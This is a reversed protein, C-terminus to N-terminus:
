FARLKALLLIFVEKDNEALNALRLLDSDLEKNHKWLVKLAKNVNETKKKVQDDTFDHLNKKKTKDSTMGELEGNIIDSNSGGNLLQSKILQGIWDTSTNQPEDDEDDDEEELEKVKRRLDELEKQMLGAQIGRAIADEVNVSSGIGNQQQGYAGAQANLAFCFRIKGKKRGRSSESHPDKSNEDMGEEFDNFLLLDYCLFNNPNFRCMNEAWDKFSKVAAANNTTHSCDYVPTSGKAANQRYILFRKLDTQKIINCVSEIGIYDVSNFM